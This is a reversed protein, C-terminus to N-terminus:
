IRRKGNQWRVQPQCTNDNARQVVRRGEGDGRGGKLADACTGVEASRLEEVVFRRECRRRDDRRGAGDERGLRALRGPDHRGHQFAGGPGAGELGREGAALRVGEGHAHDLFARARRRVRSQWERREGLEREFAAAGRGGGSRRDCEFEFVAVIVSRAVKRQEASKRRLENRDVLSVLDLEGAVELADNVTDDGAAVVFGRVIVGDRARDREVEREGGARRVRLFHTIQKTHYEELQKRKNQTKCTPQVM